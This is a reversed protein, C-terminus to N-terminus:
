KGKLVEAGNDVFAKISTLHEMSLECARKGIYGSSAVVRQKTGKQYFGIRFDGKTFFIVESYEKDINKWKESLDVMYAIAKSLDEIEDPDVFSTNSRAYVSTTPETVEIILGRVRQSEEGPRYAVLANVSIKGTGGVGVKGLENFEKVILMGKKALFTELKTTPEKPKEEQTHGLSGSTAILFLSLFIISLHNKM